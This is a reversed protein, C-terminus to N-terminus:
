EAPEGCEPTHPPPSLPLAPSRAPIEGDASARKLHHQLLPHSVVWSPLDAFIKPRRRFIRGRVGLWFGVVASLMLWVAVALGDWSAEGSLSM